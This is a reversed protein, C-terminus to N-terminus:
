LEVEVNLERLRDLVREQEAIDDFRYVDGRSSYIWLKGDLMYYKHGNREAVLKSFKGRLMGIANRTCEESIEIM